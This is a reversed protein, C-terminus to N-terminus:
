RTNLLGLVQGIAADAGQTCMVRKGTQTAPMGDAVRKFQALFNKHENLEAKLLENEAQLDIVGAKRNAQVRLQLDGIIGRLARREKMLEVNRRRLEDMEKKKKARTARSAAAVAAKRKLEPDNEEFNEEEKPGGPASGPGPLSKVPAEILHQEEKTLPEAFFSNTPIPQLGESTDSLTCDSNDLGFEKASPLEEFYALEDWLNSASPDLTESM